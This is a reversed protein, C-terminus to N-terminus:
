RKIWNNCKEEPETDCQQHQCYSSYCIVEHHKCNGCCKLSEAEEKLNDSLDILDEVAKQMNENDERLEKITQEQSDIFDHSEKLYGCLVGLGAKYIFDYVKQLKEKIEKTRNM